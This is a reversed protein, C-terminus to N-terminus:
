EEKVPLVFRFMTLHRDDRQVLPRNDHLLEAGLPAANAPATAVLIACDGTLRDSLDVFGQYDHALGTYEWGGAVRYFMMMRLIAAVDTSDRPYPTTRDDYSRNERKVAHRGTLWTQLQVSESMADIRASAGPEITGLFYVQTYRVDGSGNHILKCDLLPVGLTNTISGSLMRDQRLLSADPGLATKTTWRATLSKTSHVAIPVDQMSDFRASFAYPETPVVPDGTRPDMGGLGSGPLGFWSFLIEANKASTGDPLRPGLSLSYDATEPSFVNVWTTGRVRGSIMDVDVLDVQNTRVEEPKSWLVLAVVGVSFLIVMTPFTVWTWQMRRALKRLLFYDVPGILLIFLVALVAVWAPSISRVDAFRDLSSRLQGAMDDYGFTRGQSSGRSRDSPKPRLDLLRGILLPRDEWEALPGRDLDTALFVVRGFGRPTHVVLPLDDAAAEITGRVDILHAVAIPEGHGPIPKSSGVYTELPGTQTLRDTARDVNLTGPAFAALPSDAGLVRRANSGVCFVLRGGMEVWDHLAAAQTRSLTSRPDTGYDATSLVLVDIGEYGIWRDPLQRADDVQALATEVIGEERFLAVAEKVDLTDKVTLPNGGAANGGATNWGVTVILTCATPLASLFRASDGPRYTKRDIRRDDDYLEIDLRSEVRGFRIYTRVTTQGDALAVRVRSAAGDGDPVTLSLRGDALRDTGRLTVEVPTWLGVKYGDGLGVRVDVIQASQDAAARQVGILLCLVALLLRNTTSRNIPATAVSALGHSKWARALTAVRLRRESIPEPRTM